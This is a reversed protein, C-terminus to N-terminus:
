CSAIIVIIWCKLYYTNNARRMMHKINRRKDNWTSNRWWAQQAYTHVRALSTIVVNLISNIIGQMFYSILREVRWAIFSDFKSHHGLYHLVFLESYSIQKDTSTYSEYLTIDSADVLLLYCSLCWTFLFSAMLCTVSQSLVGHRQNGTLFQNM